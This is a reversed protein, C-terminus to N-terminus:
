FNVTKYCIQGKNGTHHSIVTSVALRDFAGYLEKYCLIASCQKLSHHFCALVTIDTANQQELLDHLQIGIKLATSLTRHQLAKHPSIQEWSTGSNHGSSGKNQLQHMNGWLITPFCSSIFITLTIWSHTQGLLFYVKLKRTYKVSLDTTTIKFCKEKKFLNGQFFLSGSNCSHHGYLLLWSM